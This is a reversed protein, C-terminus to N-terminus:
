SFPNVIKATILSFITLGYDYIDAIFL